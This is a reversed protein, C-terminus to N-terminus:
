CTKAFELDNKADAIDAYVLLLRWSSYSIPAEGLVWRRLTRPNVGLLIATREQTLKLHHIVALVEDKTPVMWGRAFSVLTEDRFGLSGSISNHFSASM